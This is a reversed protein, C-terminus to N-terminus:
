DLMNIYQTQWFTQIKGYSRLFLGLYVKQDVWYYLRQVIGFSHSESFKQNTFMLLNPLTAQRSLILFNPAQERYKAGDMKEM